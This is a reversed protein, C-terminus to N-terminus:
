TYKQKNKFNISRNRALKCNYNSQFVQVQSACLKCILSASSKCAVKMSYKSSLVKINNEYRTELFRKLGNQGDM